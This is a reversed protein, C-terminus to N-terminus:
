ASRRPTPAAMRSRSTRASSSRGLPARAPRRKPENSPALGSPLNSLRSAALTRPSHPPSSSLSASTHLSSRALPPWAGRAPRRRTDRRGGGGADAAAGGRLSRVFAVGARLARRPWVACVSLVRECWVASVAVREGQGNRISQNRADLASSKPEKLFSICRAKVHKTRNLLREYLARAREREGDAIEADIFTKWLQPHILVRLLLVGM